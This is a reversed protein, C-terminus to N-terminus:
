SFWGKAYCHHCAYGTLDRTDVDYEDEQESASEMDLFESSAPRSTVKGNALSGQATKIRRLAQTNPRRVRARPRQNQAAPTKKWLYYYEVLESTTKHSMLEKRIRFFNKGWQKLGKTFKKGEEDTWTSVVSAPCPDDVFERMAKGQEYNHTHLQFTHVAYDYADRHASVMDFAKILVNDRLGPQVAAGVNSAEVNGSSCQPERM